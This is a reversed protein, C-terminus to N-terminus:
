RGQKFASNRVEDKKGLKAFPNERRARKKEKHGPFGLNESNRGMKSKLEKRGKRDAFL